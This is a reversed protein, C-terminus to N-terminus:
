PSKIIAQPSHSSYSPVDTDVARVDSIADVQLEWVHCWAM